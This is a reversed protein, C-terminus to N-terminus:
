LSPMTDTLQTGTRSIHQSQMMPNNYYGVKSSDLQQANKPGSKQQGLQSEAAIREIDAQINKFIETSNVRVQNLESTFRHSTAAVFSISIKRQKDKFLTQSIIKEILDLQSTQNQEQQLLCLAVYLQKIFEYAQIKYQERVKLQAQTSQASAQRQMNM